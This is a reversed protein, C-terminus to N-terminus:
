KNILKNSLNAYLPTSKIVAKRFIYGIGLILFIGIYDGQKSYRLIDCGRYRSEYRIAMEGNKGICLGLMYVHIYVCICTYIYM